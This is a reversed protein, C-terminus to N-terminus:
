FHFRQWISGNNPYSVPYANPIVAAPAMTGTLTPAISSLLSGGNGYTQADIQRKMTLQQGRSIVHERFLQDVKAKEYHAQTHTLYGTQMGYSGFMPAAAMMPAAPIGTMIPTGTVIAPPAAMVPASNHHWWYSNNARSIARQDMCAAQGPNIAGQAALRNIVSEDHRADGYDYYAFVSSPMAAVVLGAMLAASLLQTVTVKM